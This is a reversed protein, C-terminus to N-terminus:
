FGSEFRVVTKMGIVLDMAIFSGELACGEGSILTGNRVFVNARIRNGEGIEAAHPKDDIGGKKGNLGNIFVRVDKPGLASDASPGLYAKTGPTLRERIRLTTPQLCVVASGSGLQLNM